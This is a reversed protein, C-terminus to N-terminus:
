AGLRFSMAVELGGAERLELDDALQAILALGLGIGPSQRRPRFGPGTDRVVVRLVGDAARAEVRLVDDEAGGGYAHVIANAAAENTALVAAAVVDPAAGEGEAFDAVARRILRLSGAVAPFARALPV